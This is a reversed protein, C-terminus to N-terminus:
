AAGDPAPSLGGPERPPPAKAAAGGAALAALENLRCVLLAAAQAKQSALPLGPELFVPEGLLLRRGAKDCVAPVFPLPAGRRRQYDRGLTLFGQYLAGTCAESSAYAVDPCIVLSQGRGLAERSLQWTRRLRGDAPCNPAARYVPIGGLSRTLAPVLAAGLAAAPAALLRPWGFRKTFTYGYYQGFCARRELFPHLVWPRPEGPLLALAAAPGALNQHHVVYVCPGAPAKGWLQWSCPLLALLRRLLRALPRWTHSKHPKVPSAGEKGFPNQVALNGM